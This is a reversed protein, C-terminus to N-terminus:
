GGAPWGVESRPSSAATGAGVEPGRGRRGGVHMECDITSSASLCTSTRALSPVVDCASPSNSPTSLPCALRPPPSAQATRLTQVFSNYTSCAGTNGGATHRSGRRVQARRGNSPRWESDDPGAQRVSDQVARTRHHTVPKAAWSYAVRMVPLLFPHFM